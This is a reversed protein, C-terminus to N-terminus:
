RGWSSRAKDGDEMARGVVVGGDLRVAEVYRGGDPRGTTMGSSLIKNNKM